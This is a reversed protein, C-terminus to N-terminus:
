ILHGSFIESLLTPQVHRLAHHASAQLLSNWVSLVALTFDRLCSHSLRMPERSGYLPLYRGPGEFPSHILWGTEGGRISSDLSVKISLKEQRWRYHCQCKQLNCALKKKASHGELQPKDPIKPLFVVSTIHTRNQADHYWNIVDWSTLKSRRM